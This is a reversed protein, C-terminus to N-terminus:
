DAVSGISSDDGHEIRAEALGVVPPLDDVGERRHSASPHAGVDLRKKSLDRGLANCDGTTPCRTLTATVSPIGVMGRSEGALRLARECCSNASRCSASSPASAALARTITSVCLVGTKQARASRLASDVPTTSEVDN